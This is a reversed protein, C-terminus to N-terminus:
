RVNNCVTSYILMPSLSLTAITYYLTDTQEIMSGSARVAVQCKQITLLRDSFKNNGSRPLFFLFVFQDVEVIPETVIVLSFICVFVFNLSCSRSVSLLKFQIFIYRHYSNIKNCLMYNHSKRNLIRCVQFKQRNCRRLMSPIKFM